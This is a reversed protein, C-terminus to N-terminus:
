KRKSYVLKVGLTLNRLIITFTHKVKDSDASSNGLIVTDNQTTSRCRAPM